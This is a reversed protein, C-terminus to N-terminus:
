SCSLSQGDINEAIGDNNDDSSISIRGFQTILVARAFSADNNDHCFTITQAADTSGDDEFTLTGSIGAVSLTDPLADSTALLEEDEARQNNNDSDIFVIKPLSWDNACSSFNASPCVLVNTQENVATSRAFRIISSTNNVTGTIQNSILISQMSPGVATLLIAAIAVTIMLELLTLGRENLLSRNNKTIVNSNIASM